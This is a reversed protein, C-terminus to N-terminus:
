SQQSMPLINIQQIRASLPIDIAFHVAEAVDQPSLSGAEAVSDFDRGFGEAFNTLTTGPAVITVRLGKSRFERDIAGAFGNQAHKSAAYVAENAGGRSGATSSVFVLNSVENQLLIPLAAQTLFISGLINTDVIERVRKESVDTISGFYGIGANIIATQLGGFKNVTNKVFQQALEFSAIDGITLSVRSPDLGKVSENLKIESRGNLGLDFGAVGLRQAISQGIGSSAGSILAVTRGTREV